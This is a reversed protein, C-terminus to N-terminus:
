PFPKKASKFDLYIKKAQPSYGYARSMLKPKVGEKEEKEKRGKHSPFRKLLLLLFLLPTSPLFPPSFFIARKASGTTAFFIFLFSAIKKVFIPKMFCIFSCKGQIFPMALMIVLFSICYLGNWSGPARRGRILLSSSALCCFSKHTTKRRRRRRISDPSLTQINDHGGVGFSLTTPEQYRFSSSDALWTHSEVVKSKKQLM